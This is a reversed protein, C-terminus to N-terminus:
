KLYNGNRNITNGNICLLRINNIFIYKRIEVKNVVMM